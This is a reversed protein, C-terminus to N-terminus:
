RKREFLNKDRGWQLEYWKRINKICERRNLLKEKYKGIYRKLEFIYKGEDDIDDSYILKFNSDEVM